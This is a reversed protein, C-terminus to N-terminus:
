DSARVGTKEALVEHHRTAAQRHAVPKFFVVLAGMMHGARASCSTALLCPLTGNDGSKMPM